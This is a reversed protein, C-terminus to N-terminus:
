YKQTKLSIPVGWQSPIGELFTYAMSNRSILVHKSDSIIQMLFYNNKMNLCNWATKQLVWFVTWFNSKQPLFLAPSLFPPILLCSHLSLFQQIARSTPILNSHFPFFTKSFFLISFDKFLRVLLLLSIANNKKKKNKSSEKTKMNKFLLFPIIPM